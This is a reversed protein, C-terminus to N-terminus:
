GTKLVDIARFFRSFGIDVFFLVAAIIVSIAIVVWTSGFVERRSSWNVKHMEGEVAILFEVSKPRIYTLWYIILGGVLMVPGAVGFQLYIPPFDVDVAGLQGWLWM